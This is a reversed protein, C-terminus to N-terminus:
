SLGELSIEFDQDEYKWFKAGWKNGLWGAQKAWTRIKCNIQTVNKGVVVTQLLTHPRDLREDQRYMKWLAGGIGVPAGVVKRLSIDLHLSFQFKSSSSAELKAGTLSVSPINNIIELTNEPVSVGGGMELGLEFKSDLNAVKLVEDNPIVSVTNIETNDIIFEYGLGWVRKPKMGDLAFPTIVHNILIPIKPGLSAEISPPIPNNTLAWFKRLDIARPRMIRLDFPPDWEKKLEQKGKIGTGLGKAQGEFENLLKWLEPDDQFGINEVEARKLIVDESMNDKGPKM